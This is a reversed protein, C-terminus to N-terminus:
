SHLDRLPKLGSYIILYCIHSDLMCSEVVHSHLCTERSIYQLHSELKVYCVHIVPANQSSTMPDSLWHFAFQRDQAPSKAIQRVKLCSTETIGLWSFNCQKVDAHLLWRCTKLMWNEENGHRTAQLPNQHLMGTSWYFYHEQHTM